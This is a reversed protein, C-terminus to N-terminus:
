FDQEFTRTRQKRKERKRAETKNAEKGDGELSCKTGRM